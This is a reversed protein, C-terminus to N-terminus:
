NIGNARQITRIYDIVMAVDGRTLGQVPPMDGFQWHHARVGQAVALQFSEDGHHSPEYIKHILPPGFGSKGRGQAGHCTACIGEFITQGVAATGTIDPLTVSVMAGSTSTSPGASTNSINDDQPRLTMYAAAFAMFCGGLILHHTKM